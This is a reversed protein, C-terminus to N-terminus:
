GHAVVGSSGPMSCVRLRAVALRLAESALVQQLPECLALRRADIKEQDVQASCVM